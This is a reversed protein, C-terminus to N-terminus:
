WAIEGALVDLQLAVDDDDGDEEHQDVEDDVEQVDHEVRPDTTGAAAQRWGSASGALEVRAIRRGTARIGTSAPEMSIAATSLRRRLDPARRLPEAIPAHSAIPQIANTTTPPWRERGVEREVVRLLTMAITACPGTRRPPCRARGGGRTRCCRGRCSTAGREPAAAVMARSRSRATMSPKTEAAVEAEDAPVEAALDVRTMLRTNSTNRAIGATTRARASTANRRVCGALGLPPEPM